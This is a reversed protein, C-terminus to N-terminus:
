LLQHILPSFYPLLESAICQNKQQNTHPLYGLTNQYMTRMFIHPIIHCYIIIYRYYSYLNVQISNAGTM